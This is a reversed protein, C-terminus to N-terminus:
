FIQKKAKFYNYYRYHSKTKNTYIINFPTRRTSWNTMSNFTFEVQALHEQWHRPQDEFLCYFMNGQTHNVVEIQGYPQPHYM